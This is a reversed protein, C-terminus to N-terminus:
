NPVKQYYIYFKVYEGRNEKRSAKETIPVIRRRIREREDEDRKERYLMDEIDM